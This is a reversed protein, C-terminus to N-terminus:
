ALYIVVNEPLINTLTKRRFDGASDLYKIEVPAHTLASLQSTLL